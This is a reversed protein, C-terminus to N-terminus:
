CAHLEIFFPLRVLPFTSKLYDPQIDAIMGVTGLLLSVGQMM